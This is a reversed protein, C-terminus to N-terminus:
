AGARKKISPEIKWRERILAVADDATKAIGQDICREEASVYYDISGHKSVAIDATIRAMRWPPLALGLDPRMPAPPALTPRPAKM